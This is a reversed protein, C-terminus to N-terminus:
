GSDRNGAYCRGSSKRLIHQVPLWERSVHSFGAVFDSGGLKVPLKLDWQQGTKPNDGTDFHIQATSYKRINVRDVTITLPAIVPKPVEYAWYYAVGWDPDPRADARVKFSVSIGTQTKSTHCIIPIVRRGSIWLSPYIAPM